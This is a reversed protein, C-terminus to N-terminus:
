KTKIKKLFSIKNIRDKWHIDLPIITNGLECSIKAIPRQNKHYGLERGKKTRTCIDDTQVNHGQERLAEVIRTFKGYEGACCKYIHTM